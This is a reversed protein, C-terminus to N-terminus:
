PNTHHENVTGWGKGVENKDTDEVRCILFGQSLSVQVSDGTEVQSNFRVLEGSPLKKCVAYGRGLVALPSLASLQGASAVMQLRKNQIIRDMLIPLDRQLRVIERKRLELFGRPSSLVGRQALVDVCDRRRRLYILVGRSLRERISVLQGELEAAVPVAIEAAASPTPARRDAVWDVICCDTEHGVASIVPIRSSHVARAVVETNFAWLEELSGGGRGVVIVEIDRRRNLGQIAAVIEGPAEQGQVSAPALVIKTGPSRRHIVTRLDQFAAGTPSTVIGVVQPFFPLARKKEPAFLGEAELKEKLQQFAVWLAGVGDAQLEDVYIQLAGDREYLSVYGRIVVRLGDQPLFGTRNSRSRFMVCRLSSSADKLTFYWHGSSPARFNSIEGRMWLNSLVRDESLLGQIKGTVESVTLIRLALLQREGGRSYKEYAYCYDDPWGWGAGPYDM